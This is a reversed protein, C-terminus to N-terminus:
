QPKPPVMSILCVVATEWRDVLEWPCAEGAFVLTHLHPLPADGMTLAASPPLTIVSIAEEHLLAHLDIGPMIQASPALM